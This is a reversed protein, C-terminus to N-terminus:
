YQFVQRRVSLCLSETPCHALSLSVSVSIHPTPTPPHLSPSVFLHHVPSSSSLHISPFFSPPNRISPSVPTFICASLSPTVSTRNCPFSHISACLSLPLSFSLRPSLFSVCLCVFLSDFIFPFSLCISPVSKGAARERERKVNRNNM